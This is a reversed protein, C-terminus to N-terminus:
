EVFRHRTASRVPLTGGAPAAGFGFPSRPGANPVVVPTGCSSRRGPDRLLFGNRVNM